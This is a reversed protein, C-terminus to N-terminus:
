VLEGMFCVVCWKDEPWYGGAEPMRSYATRALCGPVLGGREWLRDTRASRDEAGM